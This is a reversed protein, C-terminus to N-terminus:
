REAGFDLYRPAVKAVRRCGYQILYDSPQTSNLIVLNDPGTISLRLGASGTAQGYVLRIPIYNGATAPFTVNASHALLSSTLVANNAQWGLYANFGIWVYLIDDVSPTSITYNGTKPAYFYGRHNLAFNTSSFSYTSNYLTANSSGGYYFGGVSGFTSNYNPTTTKYVAPDFNSYM